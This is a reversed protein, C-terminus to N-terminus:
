DDKEEEDYGISSPKVVTTFTNSFKIIDDIDDDYLSTGLRDALWCLHCVLCDNTPKSSNTKFARRKKHTVCGVLAGHKTKAKRM